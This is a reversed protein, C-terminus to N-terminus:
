ALNLILLIVHMKGGKMRLQNRKIKAHNNNNFKQNLESEQHESVRMPCGNAFCYSKKEGDTCVNIIAKGEVRHVSTGDDYVELRGCCEVESLILM